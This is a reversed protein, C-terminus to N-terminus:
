AASRSRATRRFAGVAGPITPMCRLVDYMRRDLNFGM